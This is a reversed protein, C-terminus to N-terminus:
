RKSTGGRTEMIFDREESPLGALLEAPVEFSLRVLWPLAVRREWADGPLETLDRLAMRRVRASGLLRLLVTGRERPLEGIVVVQVRWEAAPAYLGAPGAPCPTFGFGRLVSEPRGASLLWAAPLPLRREARLELTHHWQYRKRLCEHLEAADLAHSFVEVMGPEVAMSRLLGPEIEPHAVLLAPDPVHWVDIRQADGAPVEVETEAAGVLGFFDRLINKGLQDFRFHM